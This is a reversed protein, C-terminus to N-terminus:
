GYYNKWIELHVWPAAFVAHGDVFCYCYDYLTKDTFPIPPPFHRGPPHVRHLLVGGAQETFEAPSSKPVPAQVAAGKEGKGSSDWVCDHDGM